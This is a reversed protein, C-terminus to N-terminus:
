KKKKFKKIEKMTFPNIIVDGDYMGFLPAGYFIKEIVTDFRKDCILINFMDTFGDGDSDIYLKEMVIDIDTNQRIRKDVTNNFQTDYYLNVSRHGSQTVFYSMQLNQKRGHKRSDCITHMETIGITANQLEVDLDIMKDIDIIEHPFNVPYNTYIKRGMLYDIYLLLTLLLTKGSRKFGTISIVLNDQLPNTFRVLNQNIQM